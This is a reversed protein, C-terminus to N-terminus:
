RGGGTSPEPLPTSWAWDSAPRGTSSCSFTRASVCIVEAEPRAARIGDYVAAAIERTNGFLSEYVVAIRM